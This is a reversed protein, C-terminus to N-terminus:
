KKFHALCFLNPAIDKPALGQLWRDHWFMSKKGNEVQICTSAQFPALDDDDCPIAMGQWPKKDDTWYYWLWRQRLARGFCRLIHIGLGGHEKPRYVVDWKVLCAVGKNGQTDEGKCFFNRRLKDIKKILWKPLAFVIAHYTVVTTLVSKVLQARAAKSM